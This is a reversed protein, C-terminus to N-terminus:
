RNLKIESKQLIEGDCVELVEEDGTMVYFYISCDWEEFYKAYIRGKMSVPAFEESVDYGPAGYQIYNRLYEEKQHAVGNVTMQVDIRTWGEYGAFRVDEWIASPKWSFVKKNMPMGLDGLVLRTFDYEPVRSAVDIDLKGSEDFGYAGNLAYAGYFSNYYPSAADYIRSCGKRLDFEPFNYLITLRIDDDGVFYRFGDDANFTMVFPYWGEGSQMDIEIGKETLLSDRENESSYTKMVALSM